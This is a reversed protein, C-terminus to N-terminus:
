HAPHFFILTSFFILGFIIVLLPWWTDISWRSGHVEHSEHSQSEHPSSMTVEEQHLM